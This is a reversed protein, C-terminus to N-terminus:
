VPIRSRTEGQDDDNCRIYTTALPNGEFHLLLDVWTGSLTGGSWDM